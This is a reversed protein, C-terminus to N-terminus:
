LIAKLYVQVAQEAEELPTPRQALFRRAETLAAVVQPVESRGEAAAKAVLGDLRQKLRQRVDLLETNKDLCEQAADRRLVAKTTWNALGVALPKWKGESQTKKLRELWPELGSQADTLASKDWLLVLQAARPTSVKLIRGSQASEAQSHLQQILALLVAAEALERTLKDRRDKEAVVADRVSTFSPLVTKDLRGVLGLPDSDYMKKLESVTDGAATLVDFQLGLTTAEGALSDVERILEALKTVTNTRAEELKLVMDRSQEYASVMLELVRQPTMADTKEGPTLLGREAFPVETTIKISKGTLLEHIEILQAETVFLRPLKKRLAAAKDLVDTLLPLVLWMEELAKLVPTVQQDTLGSFKPPHGPGSGTAWQYTNNAMLTVISNLALERQSKWEALLKDIEDVTM